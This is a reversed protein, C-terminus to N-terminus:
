VAHFILNTENQKLIKCTFGSLNALALLCPASPHWMSFSEKIPPLVLKMILEKSDTIHCQVILLEKTLKRIIELAMYPSKLHYLLGLALVIDFQGFTEPKIDFIDIPIHEVKSGLIEKAIYFSKSSYRKPTDVAVVTAGRKECEFSFFGDSCGIDLVTKGKLDEPLQIWKLNQQTPNDEPGYGQGGGHQGPTIIGDGFDIYHWWYKVTNMLEIKEQKTM